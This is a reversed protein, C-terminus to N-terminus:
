SYAPNTLSTQRYGYRLSLTKNGAANLARQVQFGFDGYRSTFIPNESNSGRYHFYKFGLERGIFYPDAYSIGAVSSLGASWGFGITITEGLEESTADYTNFLEARGGSLKRAPRSHPLCALRRSALFLLRKRQFVAAEILWKLVLVTAFKM